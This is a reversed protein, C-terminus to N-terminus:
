TSVLVQEYTDIGYWLMTQCSWARSKEITSKVCVYVHKENEWCLIDTELIPLQRKQIITKCYIKFQTPLDVVLGYHMTFKDNVKEVTM